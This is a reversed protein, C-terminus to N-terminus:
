ICSVVMLKDGLGSEPADLGCSGGYMVRLVVRVHM